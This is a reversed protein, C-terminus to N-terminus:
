RPNADRIQSQILCKAGNRSLIRVYAPFWAMGFLLIGAVPIIWCWFIRRLTGEKRLMLLPLAFSTPLSLLTLFASSLQRKLPELIMVNQASSTLAELTSRRAQFPIHHFSASLVVLSHEPWNQTKSFDVPTKHAIVRGHSNKELLNYANTDPYLDAVHVSVNKLDSREILRKAIPATGAGLEIVHKVGKQQVLDTIQDSAWQYYSLLPMSCGAELLERMTIRLSSPLWGLDM